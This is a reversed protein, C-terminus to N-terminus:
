RPRNDALDSPEGCRIRLRGYVLNARQCPRLREGNKCGDDHHITESTLGGAADYISVQMAWTQVNAADYVTVAKTGDDSNSTQRTRNGVVDLETVRNLYTFQDFVDTEILTRTGDPNNIEQSRPPAASAIVSVTTSSNILVSIATGLDTSNLRAINLWNAGGVTGDPDIQVLTSGGEAEKIARVLDSSTQGSGYAAALLPSLDLRDGEAANYTGSSRNYDLITDVKPTASKADALASAGFVFTDAGDRGFLTDQGGVGNLRNNAVNGSIMNDASNGTGDIAATGSLILNTYSDTLVASVGAYYDNWNGASLHDTSQALGNVLDARSLKGADLAQKWAELETPTPPRSLTNM